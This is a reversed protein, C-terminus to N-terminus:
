VMNEPPSKMFERCITTAYQGPGLCFDMKYGDELITHTINTKISASRITGDFSVGLYRSAHSFMEANIGEKEMIERIYEDCLGTRLLPVSGPISIGISCRGRKVQISAMKQNSRTVIDSKGDSFLITDGIEPETISYGEYIRNSLALNFFYSQTASVFMSRLTKPFILFSGKFDGPHEILYHLVARELSLYLPIEQLVARPDRTTIYIERANKTKQDENHGPMGLFIRVADEFDQKLIAKGIIHTNPRNVGFRQLGYYNPVGRAIDSSISNLHDMDPIHTCDRIIVSFKNGLLSGLSIQQNARGIVQLRVDKILLSEIQEQSIDYISIYQTTRARKDKTGAFGIRKHSIGLRHSIEKIIRQQDWNTKTLRCILYKGTGLVPKGIEEVQFDEPNKRIRGGTGERDSVYWSIGLEKELPYTTPKM